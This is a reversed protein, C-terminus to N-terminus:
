RFQLYLYSFWLNLVCIKKGYLPKMQFKQYSNFNGEEYSIQFEYLKTRHNCSNWASFTLTKFYSFLRSYNFYKNFFTSLLCTRLTHTQLTIYEVWTLDGQLEYARNEHFHVLHNKKDNKLIVIPTMKFFTYRSCKKICAQDSM